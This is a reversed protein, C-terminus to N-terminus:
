TLGSSYSDDVTAEPGEDGIPNDEGRLPEYTCYKVEHDSRRRERYTRNEGGASCWDSPVSPDTSIASKGQNNQVSDFLTKTLSVSSLSSPLVTVIHMTRDFDLNEDPNLIV